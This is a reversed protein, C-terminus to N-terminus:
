HLTKQYLFLLAEGNDKLVRSVEGLSKSLDSSHLVAMSYVLDFQNDAFVLNEADGVQFKVNSLTNNQKAVKIAEPSIDIGIVKAGKKGFAVSDVGNGCGIELVYLTKPDKKYHSLLKNVLSSSKTKDWHPDDRWAQIWDEKSMEKTTLKEKVEKVVEQIFTDLEQQSLSKKEKGSTIMLSDIDWKEQLTIAKGIKQKMPSSNQKQIIFQIKKSVYEELEVITIGKEKKISSVKMKTRGSLIVEKEDPVESIHSVSVGNNTKSLKFVVGIGKSSDKGGEAFGAVTFKDAMKKDSTWSSIGNMNIDEGTKISSLFKEDVNMGRFIPEEPPWKASKAIFTEITDVANKNEGSRIEKYGGDSYFVVQELMISAEKENTKTENAVFAIQDKEKRIPKVHGRISNMDKPTQISEKPKDKPKEVPKGKGAERRAREQKLTELVKFRQVTPIGNVMARITRHGRIGSGVGGKEIISDM